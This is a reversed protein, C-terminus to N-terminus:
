LAQVLALLPKALPAEAIEDEFVYKIGPIMIEGVTCENVPKGEVVARVAIDRDTIFGVLHDDKRVPLAGCDHDWM